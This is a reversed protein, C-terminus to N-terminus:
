FSSFYIMSLCDFLTLIVFLFGFLCNIKNNELSYNKIDLDDAKIEVIGVVREGYKLVDNVRIDKIKVSHGDFMEISTNEEFGGDLVLTVESGQHRHVPVQSGPTM